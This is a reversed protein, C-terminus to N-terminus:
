YKVGVSIEQYWILKRICYHRYKLFTKTKPISLSYKRRTKCQFFCYISWIWCLFDDYQRLKTGFLWYITLIYWQFDIYQRIKTRFTLININGPVWFWNMGGRMLIEKWYVRFFLVRALLCIHCLRKMDVFEQSVM